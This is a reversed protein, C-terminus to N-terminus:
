SEDLSSLTGDGDRVDTNCSLSQKRHSFRMEVANEVLRLADEERKLNGILINWKRSFIKRFRSKKIFNEINVKPQKGRIAGENEAIDNALYKGVEGVGAGGSDASFFELRSSSICVNESFERLPSLLFKQSFIFFENSFNETPDSHPALQSGLCM